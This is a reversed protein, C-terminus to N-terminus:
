CVSKWCGSWFFCATLRTKFPCSKGGGAVEELDQENLTGESIKRQSLFMAVDKDSFNYGNEQGLKVSIEAFAEPSDATQLRNMMQENNQLVEEYFKAANEVSM